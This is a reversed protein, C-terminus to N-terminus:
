WRVAWAVSLAVASAGALGYSVGGLVNARQALPEVDVLKTDGSAVAARDSWGLGFSTAAGALLAGGVVSGWVHAQKRRKRAHGDDSLLIRDVPVDAVTLHYGTYSASADDDFLQLVFARDLPLTYPTAEANADVAPDFRAGDVSWGHAPLVRIPLTRPAARADLSTAWLKWLPHDPPVKDAPPTWSPDLTRVAAFSRRAADVDGKVFAAIARARHLATAQVGDLAVKVCPTLQDVRDQAAAYAEEDLAYWAAAAQETAAFVTASADQPCVVAVDQSWALTSWVLMWM